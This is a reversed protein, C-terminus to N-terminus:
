DRHEFFRADGQDGRSVLDDVNLGFRQGPLDSVDILMRESTQDFFAAALQFIPTHNAIIACSQM